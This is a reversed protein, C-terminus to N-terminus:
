CFRWCNSQLHRQMMRKDVGILEVWRRDDLRRYVESIMEAAVSREIPTETGSDCKHIKVNIYAVDWAKCTILQWLGFNYTRVVVRKIKPKQTTM